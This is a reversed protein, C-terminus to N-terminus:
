EDLHWKLTGMVWRGPMKAGLVDQYATDFLNDVEFGLTLNKYIDVGARLHWVSYNPEKFAGIAEVRDARRQKWLGILAIEFPGKRLSIRGNILHRAYNSVYKSAVNEENYSDTFTYGIRNQLVWGAGLMTQLSLAAEIGGTRVDSINSTYLYDAGAQLNGNNRIDGSNTIVYDILNSSKRLFGTFSFRLNPVPSVDFGAEGSWSREAELWPNGINRGEALPGALNTSIYRETYSPARISRGASARLTWKGTNYSASLQPLLETGYSEDHDLRLSGTLIFAPSLQWQAMSFVAYHWDSHRGRDNSRISRNSTQIGYTLGWKSSLRRYQYLKLNLLNTTHHNPTFDPNFVFHDINHKFAGELTTTQRDGSKTLRFQNWWAKTHDTAEDVPSFTYFYRANYDREDYASRLALDWGDGLQFGASLSVNRINFWSKYNAGLPQGPTDFWMGGASIRYGSGRHFFGAQGMKLDYQGYGMKAYADTQQEGKPRAFTRTVINIVGGVADAGFQAAAPGHLVEIRAIEAPSVPINSNYHATLPDNLRMGDILVLVQSFTSGRISFDSQTGFVGRSQVEVGAAYRLVEDITHVPFSQIVKAPIITINRGSGAATQPIYSSSIVLEKPVILTDLTKVEQAFSSVSFGSLFLFFVAFQYQRKINFSNSARGKLSFNM